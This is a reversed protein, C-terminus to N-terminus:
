VSGLLGKDYQVLRMRDYKSILLSKTIAPFRHSLGVYSCLKKSHEEKNFVKPLYGRGDSYFRKICILFPEVLPENFPDDMQISRRDLNEVVPTVEYL